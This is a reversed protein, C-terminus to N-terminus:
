AETEEDTFHPCYNRNRLTVMLSSPSSREGEHIGVLCLLRLIVQKWLLYPMGPSSVSLSVQSGADAIQKRFPATWVQPVPFSTPFRCLCWGIVQDSAGISVCLSINHNHPVVPKCSSLFLFFGMKTKLTCLFIFFYVLIHNTIKEKISKRHMELIIVIFMLTWLGCTFKTSLM